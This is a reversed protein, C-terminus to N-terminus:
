LQVPHLSAWVKPYGRKYCGNLFEQIQLNCCLHLGRPMGTPPLGDSELAMRILKHELKSRLKKSRLPRAEDKVEGEAPRRQGVESLRALPSLGRQRTPPPLPKQPKQEPQVKPSKEEPQLATAGVQSLRM